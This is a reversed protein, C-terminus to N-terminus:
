GPGHYTDHALDHASPQPCDPTPILWPAKDPKQDCAGEPVKQNGGCNIDESIARGVVFAYLTSALGVFTGTLHGQFALISGVIFFCFFATM